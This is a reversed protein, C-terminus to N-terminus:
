PQPRIRGTNAAHNLQQMMGRYEPLKELEATSVRLGRDAKRQEPMTPRLDWRCGPFGVAFRFVGFWLVATKVGPPLWPMCRFGQSGGGQRPLLTLLRFGRALPDGGRYADLVGRFDGELDFTAFEPRTCVHARALVSLLFSCLRETDVGPVIWTGRRQVADLAAGREDSFKAWHTDLVGCSDECTQCLIGRQWFWDQKEDVMKNHDPNIFVFKCDGAMLRMQECRPFVHSNIAAAPAPCFGCSERDPTTVKEFQSAEPLRM